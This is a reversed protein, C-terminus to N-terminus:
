IIIKFAFSIMKRDGKNKNNKRTTALRAPFSRKRQGQLDAAQM